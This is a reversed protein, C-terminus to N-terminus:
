LMEFPIPGSPPPFARDLDALDDPTLHVSLAGHNDLVHDVSGAKPIVLVGEQRLLWALAVQVPTADHRDAVTRLSPHQLLEGREIPSYAMIPVQRKLHWPLLDYEPGRRRLSFLIQNITVAEGHPLALLDTMDSLSFNSVGWYRTKGTLVLQDFAEFTEAPLPQDDSPWHLLYLDLRDTCLRELSAECANIVDKYASHCPLVKSVLFLEDRHGAIAEALLQEAAGEAYAEATDIVTMGLDIGARLAAIEADRRTADEAMSWTGQGLSPVQEGGPLTITSMGSFLVYGAQGYEAGGSVFSRKRLRFATVM